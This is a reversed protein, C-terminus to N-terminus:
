LACKAPFFNRRSPPFSTTLFKERSTLKVKGKAAKRKRRQRKQAVYRKDYSM